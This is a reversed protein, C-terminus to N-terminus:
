MDTRGCSLARSGSSPNGHFKINWYKELVQTQNFHSLLPYQVHIGRYM